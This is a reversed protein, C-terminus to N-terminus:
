AGMLPRNQASLSVIIRSSGQTPLM